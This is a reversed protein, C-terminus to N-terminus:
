FVNKLKKKEMPEIKIKNKLIKKTRKWDIKWAQFKIQRLVITSMINPHCQSM